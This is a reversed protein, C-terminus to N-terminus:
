TDCELLQLRSLEKRLDGNMHCIICRSNFPRLILLNELATARSLMVYASQISRASELDIIVKPLTRGQSKYDTICFAPLLPLQSRRVSTMEGSCPHSVKMTVKKPLIVCDHPPLDTFPDACSDEIRVVCSTAMHQGNDNMTYCVSQVTGESGNVISGAVDFNECVLVPMQPLLPLRGITYATQSDSALNLLWDNLTTDHIPQNKFEHTADYTALTLNRQAAFTKVACWNLADKVANSACIIPASQWVTLSLDQH